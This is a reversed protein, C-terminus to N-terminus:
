RTLPMAGRAWKPLPALADSGEHARPSACPHARIRGEGTEALPQPHSEGRARKRSLPQPHPFNRGALPHGARWGDGITNLPPTRGAYKGGFGLFGSSIPHNSLFLRCIPSGDAITLFHRCIASRGSGRARSWGSWRRGYQARHAITGPCLRRRHPRSAGRERGEPPPAPTLACSEGRVPSLPLPHPSDEALPPAAGHQASRAADNRVVPACRDAAGTEVYAKAFCEWGKEGNGCPFRASFRARGTRPGAAARDVGIRDLKGLKMGYNARAVAEAIAARRLSSGTSPRRPFSGASAAARIPSM